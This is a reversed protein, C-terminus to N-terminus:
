SLKKLFVICYETVALSSTNHAKDRRRQSNHKYPISYFYMKCPIEECVRDVVKSISAAGNDSYSWVCAKSVRLISVIANILNNEVTQINKSFFETRFREGNQKSRLRGKRESAPYDYLACTELVHYYRSYEDRKYPADLYVILNSPYASVVQKLANEWPGDIVKIEHEYRQSEEAVALLRKSFELWASKKRKEIIDTISKEDVRRPQAFHGAHNSAISSVTVILVGLGWDRIEKDEIKDLAYRISDIQMCQELGFYINAFYYTFLCYPFARNNEKHFQVKKLIKKSTEETSSYLDVTKIYKRYADLIKCPNSVDMHFINKETELQKKCENRLYEFNEEYHRHLEDLIKQAKKEDFGAGQIKALLRCFLQADSAYLDNIQALANSVAGSGCMIDLIVSDPEMHPWLSEIIFGVIKKKSGMYASSNSFNSSKIKDLRYKRYMANEIYSAVYQNFTIITIGLVNYEMRQCEKYKDRFMYIINRVFVPVAKKAEQVPYCFITHKGIRICESLFSEGAGVYAYIKEPLEYNWHFIEKSISLDGKYIYKENKRKITVILAKDILRVFLDEDFEQQIENQLYTTFDNLLLFNSNNNKIINMYAVLDKIM